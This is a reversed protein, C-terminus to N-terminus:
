WATPISKLRRRWCRGSAPQPFVMIVGSMKGSRIWWWFMTQRYIGGTFERSTNHQSIGEYVWQSQLARARAMQDKSLSNSDVGELSPHPSLMVCANDDIALTTASLERDACSCALGQAVNETVRCGDPAPFYEGGRRHQAPACEGGRGQGAFAQYGGRSDRGPPTKM